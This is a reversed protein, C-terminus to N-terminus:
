INKNDENEKTEKEKILSDYTNRDEENNGL